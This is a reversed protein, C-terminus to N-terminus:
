QGHYTEQICRYTGTTLNFVPRYFVATTSELRSPSIWEGVDWVSEVFRFPMRQDRVGRVEGPSYLPSVGQYGTTVPVLWGKYPRTKKEPDERVRLTFLDYWADLKPVARGQEQSLREQHAQLLPTRLTLLSGLVWCRKYAMFADHDTSADGTLSLCAAKGAKLWMAGGAFRLFPVEDLVEAAMEDPNGEHAVKFVFAVELNAYGGQVEQFGQVNGDRGLPARPPCFRRQAPRQLDYAIVSIAQVRNTSRRQELRLNLATMMGVWAPPAPFGWVLTGQYINAHSVLIRPTTVLTHRM